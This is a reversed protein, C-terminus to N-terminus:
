ALDKLCVAMNVGDGYVASAAHEHINGLNVDVLFHM